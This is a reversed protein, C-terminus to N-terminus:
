SLTEKIRQPLSNYVLEYSHDILETLQKFSLEGNAQVTNWHKKNMHYGPLVSSPYQERLEIAREPDCKVNFSLPQADLGTLLFVKEGVKFVLTNPGFPFGETVGRKSLCYTRLEEINM